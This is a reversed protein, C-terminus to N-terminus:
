YNQARSRVARGVREPFVMGEGGPRFCFARRLGEPLCDYFFEGPHSRPRPPYRHRREGGIGKAPSSSRGCREGKGIEGLRPCYFDM